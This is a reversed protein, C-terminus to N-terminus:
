FEITLKRFNTCSNNILERLWEIKISIDICYNILFNNNKLERLWEAKTSIVIFYNM